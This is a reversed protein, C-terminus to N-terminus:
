MIKNDFLYTQNKKIFKLFEERFLKRKGRLLSIIHNKKLKIHSNFELWCCIEIIQETFLFSNKGRAIINFAISAKDTWSWNEQMGLWNVCIEEFNVKKSPLNM